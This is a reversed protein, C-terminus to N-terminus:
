AVSVLIFQSQGLCARSILFYLRRIGVWELEWEESVIRKANKEHKGKYKWYYIEVANGSKEMKYMM